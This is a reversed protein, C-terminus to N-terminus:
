IVIERRYIRFQGREQGARSLGNAVGHGLAEPDLEITGIDRLYPNAPGFTYPTSLASQARLPFQAM